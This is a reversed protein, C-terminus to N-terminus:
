ICPYTLTHNYRAAIKPTHQFFSSLLELIRIRNPEPPFLVQLISAAMQAFLYFPGLWKKTPWAVGDRVNRIWRIETRRCFCCVLLVLLIPIPVLLLLLLLMKAFQTIFCVLRAIEKKKVARRRRRRRKRRRRGDAFVKKEWKSKNNLQKTDTLTDTLTHKHTHTRTHTHTVGTRQNSAVRDYRNEIADDLVRDCLRYLKVKLWNFLAARHM